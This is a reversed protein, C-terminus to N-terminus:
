RADAHVKKAVASVPALVLPKDALAQAWAGLAEAAAPTPEVVALAYGKAAAADELDALRSRAGGADADAGITTDVGLQPTQSAVAKDLFPSVLLLGRESLERSALELAPSAAVDAGEADEAGVDAFAGVAGPIRALLRHLRPGDEGVGADGALAEPGRDTFPFASGQVPLSLMIEHGASRAQRGWEAANAVPEFALTVDAPLRRIIEATVTASRGLGAVVVAVVARGEGATFPRAYVQWPLRGDAGRKPLLGEATTEVLAPDPAPPLAAAGPPLPIHAFAGAAVPPVTLTNGAGPRAAAPDADGAAPPPAADPREGAAPPPLALDVEAVGEDPPAFASGLWVALVAAGALGVAALLALRPRSRLRALAAFPGGIGFTRENM